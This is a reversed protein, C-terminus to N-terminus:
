PKSAAGGNTCRNLAKEICGVSCFDHDTRPIYDSQYSTAYIGTARSISGDIRVWGKAACPNDCEAGCGECVHSTRTSM